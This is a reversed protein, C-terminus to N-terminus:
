RSVLSMFALSLRLVEVVMGTGEQYSQLTKVRSWPKELHEIELISPPITIGYDGMEALGM